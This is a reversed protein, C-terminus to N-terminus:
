KPHHFFMIDKGQHDIFDGYQEILRRKLKYAFTLNIQQGMIAWALGEFLDPMGVLKLGNFDAAMYKLAHHTKLLKYFPMIDAELDFWETVFTKVFAITEETPQGFLWELNISWIDPTIKVLHKEGAVKFARYVSGNNVRYVADDFGRSLFWLLEDPNIYHQLLIQDM